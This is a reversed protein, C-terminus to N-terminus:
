TMLALSAQSGGAEWPSLCRQGHELAWATAQWM